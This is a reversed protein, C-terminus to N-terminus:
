SSLAPDNTVVKEVLSPGWTALWLCSPAPSIHISAAQRHIELLGDTQLVRPLKVDPNFEQQATLPCCDRLASSTAASSAPARVRTCSPQFSSCAM